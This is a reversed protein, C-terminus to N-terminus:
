AVLGCVSLRRFETAGASIKFRHALLYKRRVLLITKRTFTDLQGIAIRSISGSWTQLVSPADTNASEVDDILTM